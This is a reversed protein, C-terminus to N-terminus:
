RQKLARLAIADPNSESEAAPGCDPEPRAGCGLALSIWPNERNQSIQALLEGDGTTLYNFNPRQLLGLFSGQPMSLTVIRNAEIVWLWCVWVRPNVADEQVQLVVGIKDTTGESRGRPRGATDQHPAGLQLRLHNRSM